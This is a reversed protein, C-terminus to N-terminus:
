ARRAGHGRPAGFVHTHRVFVTLRSEPGPGPCAGSARPPHGPAPGPCRLPGAPTQARLATGAQPRSPLAQGGQGSSGRLRAQANDPPGPKGAGTSWPLRDGPPTRAGNQTRGLVVRRLWASTHSPSPDEHCLFGRRGGLGERRPLLRTELFQPTPNNFIFRFVGKIDGETFLPTSYGGHLPAREPRGSALQLGARGRPRASGAPTTSRVQQATSAMEGPLAPSRGLRM